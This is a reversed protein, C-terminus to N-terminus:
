LFRKMNLLFFKGLVNALTTANDFLTYVTKFLFPSEPNTNININETPLSDFRLLINRCLSLPTIPWTIEHCIEFIILKKIQKFATVREEEGKVITIIPLIKEKIYNEM